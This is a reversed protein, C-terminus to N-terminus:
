RNQEEIVADASSGGSFKVICLYRLVVPVSIRVPTRNDADDFTFPTSGRPGEQRWTKDDQWYMFVAYEGTAGDTLPVCFEVANYGNRKTFLAGDVVANVAEPPDGPAPLNVFDIVPLVAM